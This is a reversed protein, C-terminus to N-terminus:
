SNSWEMAQLKGEEENVIVFTDFWRARCIGDVSHSTILSDNKLMLQLEVPLLVSKKDIDIKTKPM